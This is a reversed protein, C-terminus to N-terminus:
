GGTAEAPPLVLAEIERWELWKAAALRHLGEVLTFRRGKARVVVPERLGNAIMDAALRRVTEPHLTRARAAPM